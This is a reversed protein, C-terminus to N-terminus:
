RAGPARSSQTGPGHRAHRSPTLVGRRTHRTSPALPACLRRSTAGVCPRVGRTPRACSTPNSSSRQADALSPRPWTTSSLPSPPMPLDRRTCTSFSLTTCVGWVRSSHRLEGYEWCVARYGRISSHSRVQCRARSSAGDMLTGCSCCARAWYPPWRAPSSGSRTARSDSGRGASWYGGRVRVGCRCFCCVRCARSVRTSSSASCCGTSNMRSSRCQVSGEVTSHSVRSISCTGVARRHRNM